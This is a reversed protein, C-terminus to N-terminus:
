RRRPREDLQAILPKPAVLRYSEEVWERLVDLPPTTERFPVTVWGSRGLGYGTPEAGPVSLAHHHSENRLKVTMALNAPDEGLGLFVFVKKNVKAVREGWPFEEYAEPYGLACKRLAKEALILEDGRRAQRRESMSRPKESRGTKPPTSLGEHTPHRARLTRRPM